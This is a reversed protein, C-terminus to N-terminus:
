WPARSVRAARRPSRVAQPAVAPAIVRSVGVPPVQMPPHPACGGHGTGAVLSGVTTSCALTRSQTVAASPLKRRTVPPPAGATRACPPSGCPPLTAWTTPPLPTRAALTVSRSPPSMGLPIRRWSPRWPQGPQGPRQRVRRPIDSRCQGPRAPGQRALHPIRHGRLLLPRGPVQDHRKRHARRHLAHHVPMQGRCAARM